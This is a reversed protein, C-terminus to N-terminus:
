LSRLSGVWAEVAEYRIATALLPAVVLLFLLHGCRLRDNVVVEGVLAEAQGGEKGPAPEDAGLIAGADDCRAAVWAAVLGMEKLDCGPADNAEEVHAAGDPM